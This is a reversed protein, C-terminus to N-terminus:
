GVVKDIWGPHVVALVILAIDICVGAGLQANWFAVLLGLSLLASVTAIGPWIGSLGPFGWVALGLLVFATVVLSLLVLAVPRRVDEPLLWSQRLTFPWSPDDPKSILYLLHVLGHAIVFLGAAVRIM